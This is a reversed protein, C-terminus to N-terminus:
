PGAYPHYSRRLVSNDELSTPLSARQHPTVILYAFAGLCSVSLVISLIVGFTPGFRKIATVMIPQPKAWRRLWPPLWHSEALQTM